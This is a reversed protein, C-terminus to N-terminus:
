REIKYDEICTKITQHREENWFEELNTAAGVSLQCFPFNDTCRGIKQCEEYWPLKSGYVGGGGDAGLVWLELIFDAGETAKCTQFINTDIDSLQIAGSFTLPSWILSTLGVHTSCRSQTM